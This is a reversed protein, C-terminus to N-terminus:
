YVLLDHTDVIKWKNEQIQDQVRNVLDSHDIPQWSETAEPTKVSEVESFDVEKTGCVSLDIKKTM